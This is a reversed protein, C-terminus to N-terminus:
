PHPPPPPPLPPPMPFGKPLQNSGELDDPMPVPPGEQDPPQPAAAASAQPEASSSGAWASIVAPRVRKRGLFKDLIERWTIEGDGDADFFAYVALKVKQFFLLVFLVLCLFNLALLLITVLIALGTENQSNLQAYILGLIVTTFITALSFNEVKNSQEHSYPMFYLNLILALSIVWLLCYAQILPESVGVVVIAVVLIKRLHIVIEWFWMSRRYGRYLFGLSNMCDRSYLTQCCHHWWMTAMAAAPLLLVYVVAFVIGVAVWRWHHGTYCPYSLQQELYRTGYLDRCIFIDAVQRLLTPYLLFTIVVNTAVLKEKIFTPRGHAVKYYWVASLVITTIVLCTIPTCFYVALRGFFDTGFGCNFSRFNYNLNSIRNFVVFVADMAGPWGLRFEVIVSGMQVHNWLLRLVVSVYRNDANYKGFLANDQLVAYSLLGLILALGLFFIVILVGSVGASSCSQCSDDVRYGGLGYGSSCASCLVDEYGVGCSVQYGGPCAGGQKCSYFTYLNPDAPYAPTLADSRMPLGNAVTALLEVTTLPFQSESRWYGPLAAVYISGDCKGGEPCPHCATLILEGYMSYENSSCPPAVVYLQIAPLSRAIDQVTIRYIAGRRVMELRMTNFDAIDVQFMASAVILSTTNSINLTPGVLEIWVGLTYNDYNPSPFTVNNGVVDLAGVQLSPSAIQGLANLVIPANFALATTYTRLLLQVPDGSTVRFGLQFVWRPQGIGTLSINLVYSGTLPNALTINVFSGSGNVLSASRQGMLYASSSAASALELSLQPNVVAGALVGSLYDSWPVLHCVKAYPPSCRQSVGDVLNVVINDLANFRAGAAYRATPYATGGRSFYADITTAKGIIQFETNANSSWLQGDLSIEVTNPADALMSPESLFPSMCTVNRSDVFTASVKYASGNSRFASTFVCSLKTSNAFGYGTISIPWPYTLKAVRPSVGIIQVPPVVVVGVSDATWMPPDFFSVELSDGNCGDSPEMFKTTCLMQTSSLYQATGNTSGIKCRPIVPFTYTGNPDIFNEGTVTITVQGRMDAYQPGVSIVSYMVLQIVKPISGTLFGFLIRRPYDIQFASVIEAVGFSMQLTQSGALTMDYLRFKYIVSPAVNNVAIFGLGTQYQQGNRPPMSQTVYTTFATVVTATTPLFLARLASSSPNSPDWLSSQVQVVIISFQPDAWRYVRYIFTQNVLTTPVGNPGLATLQKLFTCTYKECPKSSNSSNSWSSPYTIYDAVLDSTSQIRYRRQRRSAGRPVHLVDLTLPELPQYEAFHLSPRGMTHIVSQTSPTDALTFDAGYLSIGSGATPNCATACLTVRLSVNQAAAGTSWTVAYTLSYVGFSMGVDTLEGITGPVAGSPLSKCCWRGGLPCLGTTSSAAATALSVYAVSITDQITSRNMRCVYDQSSSRVAIWLFASAYTDTITTPFVYLSSIIGEGSASDAFSCLSSNALLCLYLRNMTGLMSSDTTQEILPRGGQYVMQYQSDVATGMVSSDFSSYVSVDAEVNSQRTIYSQPETCSPGGYGTQCTDCTAGTWYGRTSDAACYCIPLTRDCSGHGHCLCEKQCLVGTYGWLCDSCQPGDWYGRVPDQLCTFQGNSDCAAHSFAPGTDSFNSVGRSYVFSWPDCYADCNPGYWGGDYSYCAGEALSVYLRSLSLYHDNVTQTCNLKCTCTQTEAVCTQGIGSCSVECLPGCWGASCNCAGTGYFGDSCTGHGACVANNYLCTKSCNQGYYGASCNSCNSAPNWGVNCRCATRNSSINYCSGQGGCTLGATGLPCPLSCDAGAHDRDCSCTANGVATLTYALLSDLQYTNEFCNGHSSCVSTPAGPCRLECATGAFGKNCVCSAQTTTTNVTSSSNQCTGRGSCVTSNIGIPCAVQCFAGTWGTTCSCVAYDNSVPMCTGPSVTRNDLNCAATLVGSINQVGPCLNSCNLGFVNPPCTPFCNARMTANCQCQDGFWGTNCVCTATAASCNGRGGCTGNGPCLQTCNAGGYTPLCTSCDPGAYNGYCSCTGNGLCDGNGSCPLSVGQSSLILGPCAVSCDAGVFGPYCNCTFSTTNCTGNGTCAWGADQGPCSQNCFAGGYGPACSDCAYGAYHGFCKCQFDECAGHGSCVGSSNAGLPCSLECASGGCLGGCNCQCQAAQTSTNLFCTGKQSCVLGASSPCVQDCAPGVFGSDCACTGNGQFCHGNGSCPSKAGGPCTARCSVSFAVPQCVTCNPGALFSGWVTQVPVLAAPAQIVDQGVVLPPGVRAYTGFMGARKYCVTFTGNFNMWFEVVFGPLVAIDSLGPVAAAWDTCRGGYYVLRVMDQCATMRVLEASINSGFALVIPQMVGVQVVTYSSPAPSGVLLPVPLTAWAGGEAASGRKYCVCYSAAASFSATVWVSTSSSSLSQEAVAVASPAGCAGGPLESENHCAGSPLSAVIKVADFLYSSGPFPFVVLVDEGVLPEVPVTSYAAPLAPSITLVDRLTVNKAPAFTNGAGGSIYYCILFSGPTAFSTVMTNTSSTWNSYKGRQTLTGAADGLGESAQSAPTAPCQQWQWVITIVDSPSLVTDETQFFLQVMENVRPLVLGATNWKVDPWVTVPVLVSTPTLGSTIFVVPVTWFGRQAKVFVYVLQSQAMAAPVQCTIFSQTSTASGSPPSSGNIFSYNFSYSSLSSLPLTCPTEDLGPRGSMSWRLSTKPDALFVAPVGISVIQTGTATFTFPMVIDQSQWRILLASTTVLSASVQGQTVTFNGCPAYTGQMSRLNYCVLYNGPVSVSFTMIYSMFQEQTGSAAAGQETCGVMASVIKVTDVGPTTGGSPFTIQLPQGAGVTASSLTINAPVAPQVFFWDPYTAWTGRGLCYCLSYNGPQSFRLTLQPASSNSSSMVVVGADPIGAQMACNTSGNTSTPVIKAQDSGCVGGLISSDDTLSGTSAPVQRASAFQVTVIQGVYPRVPSLTFTAPNSDFVGLLNGSSDSLEVFSQGAFGYCVKFKGSVPFLAWYQSMTASSGNMLSFTPIGGSSVDANCDQQAFLVKLTDLNPQLNAAFLTLTLLQWRYAVVPTSYWVPRQRVFGTFNHFESRFGAADFRVSVNTATNTAKLLFSVNFQTTVNAQVRVLCVTYNALTLNCTYNVLRTIGLPTSLRSVFAPGSDLKAISLPIGVLLDTDATPTVAYPLVLPVLEVSDVSSVNPVVAVTGVVTLAPSDTTPVWWSPNPLDVSFTLTANWPGVITTRPTLILEVPVPTMGFVTVAQRCQWALDSLICPGLGSTIVPVTDLQVIAAPIAVLLTENSTFASSPSVVYQLTVPTGSSVVGGPLLASLNAWLTGRIVVSPLSVSDQFYPSTFNVQLRLPGVSAFVPTIFLWLTVDTYRYLTVNNLVCTWATTSTLNCPTAFSQNRSLGWLAQGQIATALITATIPAITTTATRLVYQLTAVQGAVVGSPPLVTPSALLNNSLFPNPQDSINRRPDFYSFVGIPVSVTWNPRMADREMGTFNSMPGIFTTSPVFFLYVDAVNSDSFPVASLNCRFEQAGQICPAAVSANNTQAWTVPGQLPYSLVRLEGGLTPGTSYISYQVVAPQGALVRYLGSAPDPAYPSIVRAYVSWQGIVIVSPSHVLTNFNQASFNVTISAPGVTTPAPTFYLWLDSGSTLWNLSGSLNCTFVANGLTCNHSTANPTALSWSVMGAVAAQPISVTEMGTSNGSSTLLYYMGIEDGSNPAAFRVSYTQVRLRGIVVVAPLVVSSVIFPAELTFNFGLSGVAWPIPTIKLFLVSPTSLVPVNSCVYENVLLICGQAFVGTDNVPSWQVISGSAVKSTPVRLIGSTSTFGSANYTCSVVVSEGTNLQSPVCWSEVESIVPILPHHVLNAFNAAAFTIPIEILGAEQPVFSVTVTAGPSFFGVPLGCTQASGLLTCSQESTSSNWSIATDNGVLSAPIFIQEGGSSKGTTNLTYRVSMRITSGISQQAVTYGVVSLLASVNASVSVVSSQFDAASITFTGLSVVGVATPSPTLLVVMPTDVNRSFMVSSGMSCVVNGGLTSCRQSLQDAANASYWYAPGTTNASPFTVNINGRSTGTARVLFQVTLLQGAQVSPSPSLLVPSVLMNPKTPDSQVVARSPDLFGLVTLPPAYFSPYFEDAEFSFTTNWTGVVTTLPTFFLWLSHCLRGDAFAPSLDCMLWSQSVGACRSSNLLSGTPVIPLTNWIVPSGDFRSSPMFLREGGFTYTSTCINLPLVVPSEAVVTFVPSTMSSNGLVRLNTRHIIEAYYDAEFSLVLPTLQLAPLPRFFLYVDFTVSPVMARSFLCVYASGLLPCLHGATTDNTWSLLVLPEVWIAPILLAEGGTSYASSTLTLQAQVMQGLQVSNDAGSIQLGTFKEGVFTLIGLITANPAVSSDEMFPASVTTLFSVPGVVSPIPLFQLVVTSPTSSFTVAGSLNCRYEHFIHSCAYFTSQASTSWGVTSNPVVNTDALRIFEGGLSTGLATVSYLIQVVSGSKLLDITSSRLTPVGVVTVNPVHWSHIFNASFTINETFRGAIAPNPTFFLALRVVKGPVFAAGGAQLSCVFHNLSRPCPRAQSFNLSTGWYVVETYVATAALVISDDGTTNITSKVGYYLSLTPITSSSASVAPWPNIQVPLAEIEVDGWVVVTVPTITTSWLTGELTVPIPLPGAVAALPVFKFWASRNNNPTFAISASLNCRHMQSSFNLPCLTFSTEDTTTAWKLTGTIYSAPILLHEESTSFSSLSINLQLTLMQGTHVEILSRPTAFTVRSLVTLLPDFSTTQYGVASVTIVPGMTGAYTGIPVLQLLIDASGSVTGLSCSHLGRQTSCGNWSPNGATYPAWQLVQTVSAPVSLALGSAVGGAPSLTLHLAITDGAVVTDAAPGSIDIVGLTPYNLVLPDFYTASLMISHNGYLARDPTLWFFLDVGAPTFAITRSLDCVVSQVSPVCGGIEKAISNFSSWKLTTQSSVPFSFAATEMGPSPGSSTVHIQLNTRQGAVAFPATTIAAALVGWQTINPTYRLDAFGPASIVIPSSSFLEGVATDATTFFLYYSMEAVASFRLGSCVWDGNYSVNGNLEDHQLCPHLKRVDTSPSWFVGVTSNAASAPVRIIGLNSVEATSRVVCLVALASRPSTRTIPSGLLGSPSVPYVVSSLASIVGIQTMPLGASVTIFNPADWQIAPVVGLVSVRPTFFLSVSVPTLSFNVGSLNCIVEAISQLCLTANSLDGGLGWRVPQGIESANYGLRIRAQSTPGSATVTFIATVMTGASVVNDPSIRTPAYAPDLVGQIWVLSSSPILLSDEFFEARYVFDDAMAGLVGSNPIFFLWLNTDTTPSFTIVSTLNCVMLLGMPLCGVASSQNSSASWQLSTGLISRSPISILQQGAAASTSRIVFRIALTQGAVQPSAPTVSIPTLTARPVTLNVDGVSLYGVVTINPVVAFSNVFIASFLFPANLPGLHTTAPVFYVWISKVGVGFPSQLNCVLSLGSQPCVIGQASVQSQLLRQPSWVLQGTVAWAEVQLTEGGVTLGTASVDFELGILDGSMAFPSGDFDNTVTVNFSALVVLSPSDTYNEFYDAGFIFSLNSAGMLTPSPAFFLFVNIPTLAQVAISSLNCRYMESVVVCSTQNGGLTSSWSLGPLAIRDQRIAVFFGGVSNGTPVLTYNLVTSSGALVSGNSVVSIVPSFRAWVTTSPILPTVVFDAAVARLNLQVPGVTTEVPTLFLYFVQPQATFKMGVCAYDSGSLLCPYAQALNPTGSWWVGASSSVQSASMLISENAQSLGSSQLSCNLVVADGSRLQSSPLSAVSVVPFFGLIEVPPVLNAVTFWPASWSFAPLRRVVAMGVAFSIWLPKPVLSLTGVPCSFGGVAALCSLMTGTPGEFSIMPVSSSLTANWPVFVTANNALGTASVVYSLVIPSAAVVTTGPLVGTLNVVASIVGLITLNMLTPTFVSDQLYDAQIAISYPFLGVVTTNPVFFLQLQTDTNRYFRIGLPCALVDTTTSCNGATASSGQSVFWLM